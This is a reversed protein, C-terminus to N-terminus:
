LLELNLLRHPATGEERLEYALSGNLELSPSDGEICPMDGKAESSRITGSPLRCLHSNGLSQYVEWLPLYATRM